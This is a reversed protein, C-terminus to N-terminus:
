RKNCPWTDPGVQARPWAEPFWGEEGFLNSRPRYVFRGMPTQVPQNSPAIPDGGRTTLLEGRWGESRTCEGHVYLRFLIPGRVSPDNMRQAPLMAANIMGAVDWLNVHPRSVFTGVDTRISGGSPASQAADSDTNAVIAGNAAVAVQRGQRDYLRGRVGQSRSGPLTVELEYFLREGRASRAAAREPLPACAALIAAVGVGAACLIALRLGAGTSFRHNGRM